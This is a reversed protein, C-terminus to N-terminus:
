AFALTSKRYRGSLVEKSLRALTILCILRKSVMASIRDSFRAVRLRIRHSAGGFSPEVGLLCCAGYSAIEPRVKGPHKRQVETTDSQRGRPSRLANARACQAVPPQLLGHHEEHFHRTEGTEQRTWPTSLSKARHHSVGGNKPLKGPKLSERLEVFDKLPRRLIWVGADSLRATLYIVDSTDIGEISLVHAWQSDLSTELARCRSQQKEALALGQDPDNASTTLSPPDVDLRTTSASKIHGRRPRAGNLAGDSASQRPGHSKISSGVRHQRQLRGKSSCTRGLPRHHRM